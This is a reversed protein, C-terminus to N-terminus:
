QIKYFQKANKLHWLRFILLSFKQMKNFSQLFQLLKISRFKYMHGPKYHFGSLFVPMELNIFQQKYSAM